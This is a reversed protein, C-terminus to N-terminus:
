FLLTASFCSFKQFVRGIASIQVFSHLIVALDEEEEDDDDEQCIYYIDDRLLLVKQITM